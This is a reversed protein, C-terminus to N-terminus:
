TAPPVDDPDTVSLGVFRSVYGDLFAKADTCLLDVGTTKGDNAYTASYSGDGGISEQSVTKQVTQQSISSTGWWQTFLYEVQALCAQSVALPVIPYGTDEDFDEMRPFVRDTNDDDPNHQQQGVYKDIQSEARQILKTRDAPSLSALATILTNAAVEAETIYTPDPITM